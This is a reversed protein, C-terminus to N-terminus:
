AEQGYAGSPCPLLRDFYFATHSEHSLGLLYRGFEQQTDEAAELWLREANFLEGLADCQQLGSLRVEHPQGEAIFTFHVAFHDGCREVQLATVCIDQYVKGLEM